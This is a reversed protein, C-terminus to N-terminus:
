RLINFDDWSNGLDVKRWYFLRFCFIFLLWKLCCVLILEFNEFVNVYKEVCFLCMIVCNNLWVKEESEFLLLSIVM